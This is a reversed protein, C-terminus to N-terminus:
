AYHSRFPCAVVAQTEGLGDTQSPFLSPLTIEVDRILWTEDVIAANSTLVIEATVYPRVVRCYAFM